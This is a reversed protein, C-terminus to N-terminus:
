FMSYSKYVPEDDEEDFEGNQARLAIDPMGAQTADEVLQMIPYAIPSTFDGYYGDIANKLLLMASPNHHSFNPSDLIARALIQESM